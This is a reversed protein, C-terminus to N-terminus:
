GPTTQNEGQEYDAFNGAFLEALAELAAHADPGDAEITLQTGQVAALTMLDTISRGDVRHNEKLLEIKAQFQNALQVILHAPRLHLGQSNNVVVTRSAKVDSM